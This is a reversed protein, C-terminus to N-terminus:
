RASRERYQQPTCGFRRKFCTSFYRTDQFGSKQAIEYVKLPESSEKLMREAASLRLQLIYEKFSMGTNRVFLACFYGYSLNARNALEALTLPEAFHAHIYDMAKLIAAPAESGITACYNLATEAYRHALQKLNMLGAAQRVQTLLSLFDAEPLNLQEQLGNLLAETESQAQSLALQGLTLQSLLEDLDDWAAEREGHLIKQILRRCRAQSFLTSGKLLASQHRMRHISLWKAENLASQAQSFLEIWQQNREGPDSIGLVCGEGAFDQLAILLNQAADLQQSQCALMVWIARGYVHYVRGSVPSERVFAEMRSLVEGLHAPPLTNLPELLGVLYCEGSLEGLGSLDYVLDREIFVNEGSLYEYLLADCYLSRRGPTHADSLHRAVAQCLQDRTVPKVLYEDVGLEIAQRAYDFKEHASLILFHASVGERKLRKIMSLGDMGPMMIDVVILDMPKQLALAYGSAGDHAEYINLNELSQSLFDKLGSLVERQDDVLLIQRM